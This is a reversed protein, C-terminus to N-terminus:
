YYIYIPGHLGCPLLPSGCYCVTDIGGDPCPSWDYNNGSPAIPCGRSACSPYFIYNQGPCDEATCIDSQVDATPPDQADDVTCATLLMAIRLYRLM